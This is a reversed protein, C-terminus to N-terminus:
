VRARTVRTRVPERGRVEGVVVMGVVEELLWERARGVRVRVM